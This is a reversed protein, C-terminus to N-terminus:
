WVIAFILMLKVKLPKDAFSAHRAGKQVSSKILTSNYPEVVIFPTGLAVAGSYVAAILFIFPPSLSKSFKYLIGASFM